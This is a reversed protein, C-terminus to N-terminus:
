ARMLCADLVPVPSAGLVHVLVHVLALVVRAESPESTHVNACERLALVRVVAAQTARAAAILREAEANPAAAVISAAEAEAYAVVNLEQLSM